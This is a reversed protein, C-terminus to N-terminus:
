PATKPASPNQADSTASETEAELGHFRLADRLGTASLPKELFDRVGAARMADRIDNRASASWGLVLLNPKEAKIVQTAQVGDMEPMEYDMIVLALEQELAVDAGARGNEATVVSMGLREICRGLVRRNVRDDDVVLVPLAPNIAEPRDGPQVVQLPVRVRFTTGEGLVSQLAMEGDMADVIVKVLALGLGSGQHKRKAHGEVQVFPEFIREQDAASIGIGTDAIELDFVDEVYRARVTVKGRETFKIANEVLHVIVRELRDRDGQVDVPIDLVDWDLELNKERARVRFGSEASELLGLLTFQQQQKEIAQNRARALELIDGVIFRLRDSSEQLDVLAADRDRSNPGALAQVAGMIGTLPTKLEHSILELFRDRVALAEGLQGNVRNLVQIQANLELRQNTLETVLKDAGLLRRVMRTARAMLTQSMPPVVTYVGRRPRLDLEVQAEPLGLLRPFARLVGATVRFFGPCDAYDDPIRIDVLISGDRRLEQHVQLHSFTRELGFRNGLLILRTPSALISISRLLGGIPPAEFITVGCDEMTEGPPLIQEVREYLQVIKAWPYRRRNQAFFDGDHGFVASADGLYRQSVIRFPALGEAAVEGEDFTTM